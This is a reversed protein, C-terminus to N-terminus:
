ERGSVAKIADLPSSGRGAMVSAMRAMAPPIDITKETGNDGDFAMIVRLGGKPMEYLRFMGSMIPADDM